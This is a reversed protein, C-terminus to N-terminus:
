SMTLMKQFSENLVFGSFEAIIHFARHLSGEVLQLVLRFSILQNPLRASGGTPEGCPLKMM